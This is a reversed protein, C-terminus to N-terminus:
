RPGGRDPKQPTRWAATVQETTASHTLGLVALTELRAHDAQYPM